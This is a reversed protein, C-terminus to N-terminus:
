LADLSHLPWVQFTAQASEAFALQGGLEESNPKGPVAAKRSSELTAQVHMCRTDSCGADHQEVIELWVIGLCALPIGSCNRIFASRHPFGAGCNMQVDTMLMPSGCRPSPRSPMMCPKRRSCLTIAEPPQRCAAGGWWWRQWCRCIMVPWKLIYLGWCSESSGM